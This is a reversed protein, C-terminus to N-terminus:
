DICNNKGTATAELGKFIPNNQKLKNEIDNLRENLLEEKKRLNNIEEKLKNNEEKMNEISEQLKAIDEKTSYSKSDLLVNFSEM